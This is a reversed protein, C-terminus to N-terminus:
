LLVIPTVSLAVATPVQQQAPDDWLYNYTWSRLFLCVPMGNNLGNCLPSTFRWRDIVPM